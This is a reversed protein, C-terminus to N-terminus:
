GRRPERGGGGGGGRGRAVARARVLIMEFLLEQEVEVFKVDWAPLFDALNASKLPKAIPTPDTGVYHKCYEIVKTLVRTKVNVLPVEESSGLTGRAAGRATMRARRGVGRAEAAAGVVRLERM